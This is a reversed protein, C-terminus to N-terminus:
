VSKSLMKGLIWHTMFYFLFFIILIPTMQITFQPMVLFIAGNILQKSVIIFAIAAVLGSILSYIVIRRNLVSWYKKFYVFLYALMSFFLGISWSLAAGNLGITPIYHLAAMLGTTLGIANCALIAKFRDTAHLGHNIINSLSFSIVGTSLLLLLMRIDEFGFGFLLTWFEQPLLFLGLVLLFTGLFNYGMMSHTIKLHNSEGTTNLIKIHQMQAISHGLIWTSESLIVANNYIGLSSDGIFFAVLFFNLRYNLFQVAQASQVWFGQKLIETEFVFTTDVLLLAPRAFRYSIVVGLVLAVFLAMIYNIEFKGLMQSQIFFLGMLGLPLILLSLNRKHVDQMGMLILHNLNIMSYLCAALPILYWYPISTFFLLILFSLLCTGAIWILSSLWLNRRAYKYSLNIIASSNGFDCFLQVLAVTSMFLGIRGRGEPGLYRSVMIVTLLGLGAVLSKSVFNSVIGKFFSSM